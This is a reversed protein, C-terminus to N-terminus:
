LRRLRRLGLEFFIFAALQTHKASGYFRFPSWEQSVDGERDTKDFIRYPVRVAVADNRDQESVALLARV